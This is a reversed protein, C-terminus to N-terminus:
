HILEQYVTKVEEAIRKWSFKKSYELIKDRDWKTDLALLIKEKLDDVNAPEVLLGYDNSTIIEPVGGVRTGIFPLGVGLSEFMVTPNGENLSSLVFFDSASLWTPIDSHRKQGVLFITNTLSLNNIQEILTKRLEGDGIIYCVFDNRLKKVEYLSDILFRHGKVENLNGVSILIKKDLPLNLEKRATIKDHPFFLDDKYGNPIIKVKTKVDLKQIYELNKNSVTIIYDASNLVERIREGWDADRFPLDYIDYGHATIVLPIGYKEKLYSGARGASWVFHSHILDIKYNSQKVIKEVSKAHRLGLRKYEFNSPLYFVPSPKVTVNSPINHLDLLKRGLVRFSNIQLFKGVSILSNYRVLMLISNLDPAITETFDKIFDAYNHSIVLLNKNKLKASNDLDEQM